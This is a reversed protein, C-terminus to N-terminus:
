QSHFGIEPTCAAPFSQFTRRPKDVHPALPRSAGERVPRSYLFHLILGQLQADHVRPAVNVAVEEAVHVDGLGILVSGLGPEPGHANVKYVDVEEIGRAHDLAPQIGLRDGVVHCLLLHVRQESRVAVEAGLVGHGFIPFSTPL